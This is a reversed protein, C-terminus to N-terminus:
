RGGHVAEAVREVVVVHDLRQAALGVRLGVAALPQARELNEDGGIERRAVSSADRQRQLISSDDFMGGCMWEVAMTSSPACIPSSVRTQCQTWTDPPARM